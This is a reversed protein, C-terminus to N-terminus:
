FTNLIPHWEAFNQEPIGHKSWSQSQIRYFILSLRYSFSFINARSYVQNIIISKPLCYFSFSNSTLFQKASITSIFCFIPKSNRGPFSSLQNQEISRTWTFKYIYINWLIRKFNKVKQRLLHSYIYVLHFTYLLSIHKSEKDKINFM